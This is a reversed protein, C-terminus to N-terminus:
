PSPFSRKVRTGALGSPMRNLEDLTHYIHTVTMVDEFQLEALKDALADFLVHSTRFYIPVEQKDENVIFGDLERAIGSLEAALAEAIGNRERRKKYGMELVIFSIAGGVLGGLPGTFVKGLWTAIEGLSATMSASM